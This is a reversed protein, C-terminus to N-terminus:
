YADNWVGGSATVRVSRFHASLCWQVLRSASLGIDNGKGMRAVRPRVRIMIGTRVARDLAPFGHGIVWIPGLHRTSSGDAHVHINVRVAIDFLRDDSSIRLVDAATESYVLRLLPEFETTQHILSWQFTRGDVNFSNGM